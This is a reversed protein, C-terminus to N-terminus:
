SCRSDKYEDYARDEYESLYEEYAELIKDQIFDDLDYIGLTQLSIGSPRVELWNQIIEGYDYGDKEVWDNYDLVRNM